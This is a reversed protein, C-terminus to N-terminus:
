SAEQEARERAEFSASDLVTEALGTLYRGLEEVDSDQEPADEGMLARLEAISLM